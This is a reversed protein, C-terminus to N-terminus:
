APQQLATVHRGGAQAVNRILLSHFLEVSGEMPSQFSEYGSLGHRDSRYRYARGRQLSEHAEDDQHQAEYWAAKALEGYDPVDSLVRPDFFFERTMLTREPTRPVYTTVTFMFPWWEIMVNPLYLMILAAFSPLAQNTARLIANQWREYAPSAPNRSFEPHPKMEQYMVRESDFVGDSGYWNDPAVFRSLGPHLLPVHYNELLIEVPIKWNLPQEEEESDTLVYHRIDLDSRGSLSAMDDAVNCDGAFLIGNWDQLAGQPLQMCPTEPYRSASVLKGRLDYSWGHVPCVILSRRGRGRKMTSSRHLCVNSLLRVREGDHVIMEGHDRQPVTHYCGREPVMPVCGVYEPGAAFITRKEIDLIEPEFYWALPLTRIPPAENM